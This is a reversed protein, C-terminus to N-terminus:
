AAAGEDHGPCPAPAAGRTMAERIALAVGVAQHMEAVDHVRVAQAGGLVAATVASATGFLRAEPDPRQGDANPALEAIFSKRSPGVLVPYGTAVFRTTAALLEASQAATKAFGIGPDLWIRAQPIGLGRAREVPGMLERLVDGVLDEYRTNKSDVEGRKRNHMLVLRADAEAAVELLRVDRGGGVDNVYHAGALLARKAVEPKTTDISIEVGPFREVLAEVVPVTRRVEEDVGVSEFGAGYTKGRPRTSEGGVDIVHAGARVMAAGHAIAREFSDFRGGDSFSDPTVNLVGWIACGAPRGGSNAPPM